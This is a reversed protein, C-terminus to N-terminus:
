GLGATGCDTDLQIGCIELGAIFVSSRRFSNCGKCEADSCGSL